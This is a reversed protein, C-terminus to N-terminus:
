LYKGIVERDATPVSYRFTASSTSYRAPKVAHPGFTWPIAMELSFQDPFPLPNLRAFPPTVATSASPDPVSPTRM